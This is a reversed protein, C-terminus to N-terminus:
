PNRRRTTAPASARTSRACTTNGSTAPSVSPRSTRCSVGQPIPKKNREAWGEWSYAAEEINLLRRELLRDPRRKDGALMRLLRLESSINIRKAKAHDVARMLRAAFPLALVRQQEQRLADALEARRRETAESLMRRGAIARQKDWTGDFDLTIDGRRELAHVMVHCNRCLAILDELREAGVREYTMHHLDTRPEGCICEQPLWRTARYRGRIQKWHPSRLYHAYDRYGLEALRKDRERWRARVRAPVNADM